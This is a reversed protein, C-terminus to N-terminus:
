CPAGLDGSTQTPYAAWIRECLGPATSSVAPMGLEAVM